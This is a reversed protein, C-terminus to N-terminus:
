KGRYSAFYLSIEFSIMNEVTRALGFLSAYELLEFEISFIKDQKALRRSERAIEKRPAVVM